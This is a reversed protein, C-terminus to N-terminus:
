IASDCEANKIMMSRLLCPCALIWSCGSHSLARRAMTLRSATGSPGRKHASQSAWDLAAQARIPNLEGRQVLFTVFDALLTREARMAYGMAQRIAFYAALRSELEDPTV